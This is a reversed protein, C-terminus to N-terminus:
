KNEPEGVFYKCHVASFDIHPYKISLAHAIKESSINTGQYRCVDKKMCNRCETSIEEKVASIDESTNIPSIDGFSTINNTPINSYTNNAFNNNSFNNNPINNALSNIVSDIGNVNKKEPTKINKKSNENEVAKDLIDAIDKLPNKVEETKKESMAKEMEKRELNKKINNLNTEFAKILEDYVQNYPLKLIDEKMNNIEQIPNNKNPKEIPENNTGEKPYEKVISSLPKFRKCFRGENCGSNYYEQCLTCIKDDKSSGNSQSFRYGSELLEKIFASVDKSNM